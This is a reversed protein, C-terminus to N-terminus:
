KKNREMLEAEKKSKEKRRDRDYNRWNKLKWFPEIGQQRTISILEDITIGLMDAVEAAFYKNNQENKIRNLASLVMKNKISKESLVIETPVDFLNQLLLYREPTIIEWKKIKSLSNETIGQKWYCKMIKEGYVEEIKNNIKKICQKDIKFSRKGSANYCILSVLNNTDLPHQIDCPLDFYRMALNAINIEWDHIPLNNKIDLEIQIDSLPTLFFSLQYQSREYLQLRCHHKPCVTILPVQHERHWYPEGVRAIDDKYCQPCYKAGFRKDVGKDDLRIRETASIDFCLKICSEYMEKTWFRMYLPIVSHYKIIDQWTIINNPLRDLVSFTGKPIIKACSHNEEGFLMNHILRRQSCGTQKAFRALVSYWWEDAYPYPFFPLTM